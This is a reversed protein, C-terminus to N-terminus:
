RSADRGLSEDARWFVVTGIILLGIAWSALILWQSWEPTVGYLLSNRTINLVQHMPNFELIALVAPNSVINEFSYFVGSGYMWIRLAFTLVQAFDRVKSVVRAFLLVLGVILVLQLVVVPIILLWRWTIVELPPIALVLVLMTVLTIAYTLTEKLVSSVPLAIRPFNFAEVVNNKSNLANAGQIITRSTFMFMFVGITLFGLFNEVGRSTGLLVGFILFYTAGNLIPTLVLWINGLRHERNQAGVSVRAEYAIFHRVEWLRRLYNGIGPRAGVRRLGDMRVSVTGASSAATTDTVDPRTSKAM